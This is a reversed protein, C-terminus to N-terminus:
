GALPLEETRYKNRILRNFSEGVSDSAIVQGFAHSPVDHYLYVRSNTFKVRMKEHLPDYEVRALNMSDEIYVKRTFLIPTDNSQILKM